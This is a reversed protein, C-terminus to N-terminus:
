IQNWFLVGVIIVILEFEITHCPYFHPIQKRYDNKISEKLNQVNLPRTHPLFYMAHDADFIVGFFM